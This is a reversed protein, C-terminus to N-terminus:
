TIEAVTRAQFELVAERVGPDGDSKVMSSSSGVSSVASLPLEPVSSGAVAGRDSECYADTVTRFPM